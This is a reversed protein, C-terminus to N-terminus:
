ARIMLAALAVAATTVVATLVGTLVSDTYAGVPVSAVVAAGCVIGSIPM